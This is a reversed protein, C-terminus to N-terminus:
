LRSRSLPSCSTRKEKRSSPHTFPKGFHLYSLVGGYRQSMGLTEGIRVNYGEVMTANRVIRSLTLGGQDGVGTIILNFEM